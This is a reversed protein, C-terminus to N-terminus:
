YSTYFDARPMPRVREPIWLVDKGGTHNAARGLVPFTLNRFDTSYSPVRIKAEALLDLEQLKDGRHRIGLNLTPLHFDKAWGWGVVGQAREPKCLIGGEDVILDKLMRGSPEQGESVYVHLM